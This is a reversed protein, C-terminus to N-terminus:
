LITQSPNQHFIKEGDLAQKSNNGILTGSLSLNNFPTGSEMLSPSTIVRRLNQSMGNCGM